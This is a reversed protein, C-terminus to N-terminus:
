DAGLAFIFYKSPAAGPNASGTFTTRRSIPLRAWVLRTTRGNIAIEGERVLLVEEHVHKHAPHPAMGGPLENEHLDLRYASHTDGTLIQYL